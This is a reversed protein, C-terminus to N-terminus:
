AAKAHEARLDAFIESVPRPDDPANWGDEVAANWRALRMARERNERILDRVLDSASAYEGSRVQAEVWEKLADPLSVNMTAM